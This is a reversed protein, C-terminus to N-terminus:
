EAAELEKDATQANAGARAFTLLGDDVPSTKMYERDHLYDHSLRWPDSSTSKPMLHQARKVYGAELAFSSAQDMQLDDPPIPVAIDTETKAMQKLIRCTYDALLDYRLTASANVYAVPYTMNPVNSLMSSKYFFREGANLHEGDIDIDIGGALQLEFGTATVIIDAELLRGDTLRVGNSEFGEIRATVVDAKGEKIAEFLDANPIFCMRQDWPNYPPSFDRETYRDGLIKRNEAEIRARVQDPNERARKFMLNVVRINIWRIVKNATHRPLVARIFRLIKSRMPLSRLYTPTRQLMTVHGAKGSMSPVITVATAGSGIVVVKKGTYDLNEPWFQPHAVVGDFDSFDFGPDHPKDYSYYGAGMYIWRASLVHSEGHRDEATVIWRGKSSDFKASKVTHGLRIKDGVGYKEVVRRLYTKIREASGLTDKDTWPEFEYGMTYMDSDSRVGPYRFLDWTGGLDDRQELIIYSHRPVEMKMRAAMGIGSIGAGVILVDYDAALANM